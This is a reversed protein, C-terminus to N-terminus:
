SDLPGTDLDGRRLQRGRTRAMPTMRVPEMERSGEKLEAIIPLVRLWAEAGAEDGDQRLVAARLRAYEMAGDGKADIVLLAAKLLRLRGRPALAGEHHTTPVISVKM